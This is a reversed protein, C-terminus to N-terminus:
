WFFRLGLFGKTQVENEAGEVLDFRGTGFLAMNDAVHVDLGFQVNVGLREDSDEILDGNVNEFETDFFHVGAGVGFYYDVSRFPVLGLLNAGLLLDTDGEGEWYAIEPEIFGQIGGQRLEYEERDHDGLRIRLNATYYPEVPGEPDVLGLGIGFAYDNAQGEDDYDEDAGAPVAAFLLLLAAVAILADRLPASHRM